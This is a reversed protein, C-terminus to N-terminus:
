ADQSARDNNLNWLIDYIHEGEARLRNVVVFCRATHM